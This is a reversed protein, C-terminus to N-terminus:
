SSLMGKMEFIQKLDKVLLEDKPVPKQWFWDAGAARHEVSMDNGSSGIIIGPVHPRLRAIVEAGTLEGGCLPMYHDMLILDYKKHDNLIKEIAIEGSEAQDICMSRDINRLRRSLLKRILKDDDVILVALKPPIAKRADDAGSLKAAAATPKKDNETNRYSSTASLAAVSAPATPSNDDRGSSPNNPNSPAHATATSSSVSPSGRNSQPLTGSKGDDMNLSLRAMKVPAGDLSAHTSTLCPDESSKSRKVALRENEVGPTATTDDAVVAAAAEAVAADASRFRSSTQSPDGVPATMASNIASFLDPGARRLPLRMMFRTGPCGDRRSNYTDDVTITGGMSEMLHRTLCLGIGSGQGQQALPVYRQFLLSRKNPAIGPGSDEVHIILVARDISDQESTPSSLTLSSSAAHSKSKAAPPKPSVDMRSHGSEDDADEFPKPLELSVRLRIFGDQTFQFANSLVNAIAQKLRLDDLELQLELPCDVLFKILHSKDVDDDADADDNENSDFRETKGDEVADDDADADGDNEELNEFEISNNRSELIDRDEVPSVELFSLTPDFGSRGGGTRRREFISQISAVIDKRLRVRRPRLTIKGELLKNMDLMSTLMQHIYDLSHSVIRADSQLRHRTTESMSSQALEERLFQTATLAAALPNRIEHAVFDNVTQEAAFRERERVLRENAVQIETLDLGFCFCGLISGDTINRRINTNVLLKLPSQNLGLQVTLLVNNQEKGDLAEEVLDSARCVSPVDRIAHQLVQQKPIGTIREMRDNWTDIQMNKDVGFVPANVHQVFKRLEENAAVVRRHEEEIAAHLEREQIQKLKTETIDTHTGIMRLPSGTSPCWEIVRGRCMVWVWHGKKHRYRVELNYDSEGHTDFHKQMCVTAVKLDEPHIMGMWESPDHKKERAEYGFM